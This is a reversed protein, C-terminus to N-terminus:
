YDPCSEFIWQGLVQLEGLPNQNDKYINYVRQDTYVLWIEGTSEKWAQLAVQKAQNWNTTKTDSYKIEGTKKDKLVMKINEGKGVKFTCNNPAYGKARALEGFNIFMRTDNLLQAPKYVMVVKSSYKDVDAMLVQVMDASERNGYESKWWKTSDGYYTVPGKLYYSNWWGHIQYYSNDSRLINVMSHFNRRNKYYPAKIEFGATTEDPVYWSDFDGENNEFMWEGVISYLEWKFSWSTANWSIDENVSFRKISDKPGRLLVGRSGKTPEERTYATAKDFEKSCRELSQDCKTFTTKNTERDQLLM